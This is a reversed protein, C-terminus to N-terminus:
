NNALKTDEWLEIKNGEPDMVWAFKGYEEEVPEGVLPVGSARLQAVLADLDDVRLNIMVARDSPAFYETEPKFLSFVTYGDREPGISDKNLFMAGWTDMAIGLHETYWAQTSPQDKCRLFVGGLGIVKAM